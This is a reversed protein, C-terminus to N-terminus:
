SAETTAIKGGLEWRGNRAFYWHGPILFNSSPKKKKLWKKLLKNIRM